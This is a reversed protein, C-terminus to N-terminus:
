GRPKVVIHARRNLAWCEETHESCVPREKGYSVTTMRDAPIGLAALYSKTARARRDGLALNYEDTGREDCQGEILVLVDNAMLWAADTELVQADGPRIEYKDFDFYIPKVNANEAFSAPAPREDAVIAERQEEIVIAQTPAASETPAQAATASPSPAAAMSTVSPRRACGIVTTTLVLACVTTARVITTMTATGKTRRRADRSFEKRQNHREAPPASDRVGRMEALVRCAGALHVARIVL